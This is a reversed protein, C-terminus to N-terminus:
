RSRGIDPNSTRSVLRKHKLRLLLLFAFLFFYFYLSLHIVTAASFDLHNYTAEAWAYVAGPVLFFSFPEIALSIWRPATTVTMATAALWVLGASLAGALVLRVIVQLFLHWVPPLVYRPAHRRTPLQDLTNM